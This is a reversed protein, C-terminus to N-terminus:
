DEMGAPHPPGGLHMRPAPSATYEQLRGDVMVTLLQFYLVRIVQTTIRPRAEPSTSYFVYDLTEFRSSLCVEFGESFNRWLTLLVM